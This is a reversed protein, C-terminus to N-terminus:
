YLNKSSSPAEGSRSFNAILNAWMEQLSDNDEQSANQILPIALRFEIPNLKGEFRRKTKIAEFKDYIRLLNKMRFYRAWDERYAGVEKSAPGLIESLFGDVKELLDLAKGATKAVEQVTKEEEM